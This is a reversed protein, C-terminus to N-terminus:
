QELDQTMAELLARGSETITLVADVVAVYGLAILCEMPLAKMKGSAAHQLALVVTRSARLPTLNPATM